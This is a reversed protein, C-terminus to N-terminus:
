LNNLYPFSTQFDQADITVGDSFATNQEAAGDVFFGMLVRFFIDVVDDGPRRGNPYGADDGALVALPNQNISDIAPTQTNLRLALFDKPTKVKKNKLIQNLNEIGLFYFDKLDDRPFVNPAQYATKDEILKALAPYQFYQAFYKEDKRPTRQSFTIKDNYALLYDQIFPHAFRDIQVFDKNSGLSNFGFLAKAKIITRAPYNITAWIAINFNDEPLLLCSKPIELAISLVSQDISTSTQNNAEFNYNLNNKIGNLNGQYSAQKQGVFVKATETCKKFGLDIDYIFPSVYDSYNTFSETDIFNEPMEFSNQTSNALKIKKGKVIQAPGRKNQKYSRSNRILEIQYSRSRFSNGNDTEINGYSLFPLAIEESDITTTTITDKLNESFTFRYTQNEIADGDTDIHIEYNALPDFSITAFNESASQAYNTIITIFDERGAEYSTFAYLDNIKLNVKNANFAGTHAQVSVCSFFIILILIFHMM